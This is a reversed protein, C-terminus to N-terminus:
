SNPMILVQGNEVVDIQLQYRHLLAMGILVDTEASDAEVTRWEGDWLLTSEYLDLLDEKGNALLVRGQGIYPLDLLKIIESPLTLFGNFGTDIM